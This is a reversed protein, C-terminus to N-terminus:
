PSSPSNSGSAAITIGGVVAAAALLAIIVSGGKVRNKKAVTNGGRAVPASAVQKSAVAQKTQAVQAVAPFATMSVAVIAAIVSKRIIM